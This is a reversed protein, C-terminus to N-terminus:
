EEYEARSSLNKMAETLGEIGQEELTEPPLNLTTSQNIAKGEDDVEVIRGSETRSQPSFSAAIQDFAAEFDAERGKGKGKLDASQNLMPGAQFMPQGMSMGGYMGMGYGMGGFASSAGVNMHNPRQDIVFSLLLSVSYPM